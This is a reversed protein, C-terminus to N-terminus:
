PQLPGLTAEFTTAVIAFAEIPWRWAGRKHPAVFVLGPQALLYPDTATVTARVMLAGKLPERTLTYGTLGAARQYGANVQAHVGRITVAGTVADRATGDDM